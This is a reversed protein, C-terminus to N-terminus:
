TPAKFFFRIKRRSSALFFNFSLCCNYGPNAFVFSPYLVWIKKNLRFSPIRGLSGEWLPKGSLNPHPSRAAVCQGPQHVRVLHLVRAQFLCQLGPQICSVPGGNNQPTNNQFKVSEPLGLFFNTSSSSSRNLGERM